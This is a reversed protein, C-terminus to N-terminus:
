THQITNLTNIKKKNKMTTTNKKERTKIYLNNKFGNLALLCSVPFPM